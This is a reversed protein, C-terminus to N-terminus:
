RSVVPLASLRYILQSKTRAHTKPNVGWQFIVTQGEPIREPRYETFLLRNAKLYRYPTVTHKGIVLVPDLARVAIPNSTAVEFEVLQRTTARPESYPISLPERLKVLRATIELGEIRDLNSPRPTQVAPEAAPEAVTVAPSRPPPVAAACAALLAAALLAGPLATGARPDHSEPRRTM